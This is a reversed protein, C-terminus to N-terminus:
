DLDSKYRHLSSPLFSIAAKFIKVPYYLPRDIAIKLRAILKSSLKSQEKLLAGGHHYQFTYNDASWDRMVIEPHIINGLSQRVPPPSSESDLTHTADLGFGINEVLNRNPLATLANNAMCVLTWRYAWSDPVGVSYLKDWINMWYKREFPDDFMAM